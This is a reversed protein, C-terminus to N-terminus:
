PQGSRSANLAAVVLAADEACDMVGILQEGAATVRYITRGLKRGVRYQGREAVAGRADSSPEDAALHPWAAALGAGICCRESTDDAGNAHSEACAMYGRDFADVAAGSVSPQEGV